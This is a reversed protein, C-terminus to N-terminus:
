ASRSHSFHVLAQVPVVDGTQSKDAVDLSLRFGAIGAQYIFTSPFV